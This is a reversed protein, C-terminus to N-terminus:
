MYTHRFKTLNMSAFYNARDRFEHYKKTQTIILIIGGVIIAIKLWLLEFGWILDWIVVGYGVNRLVKHTSAQSNAQAVWQDRLVQAQKSEKAAERYEAKLDM